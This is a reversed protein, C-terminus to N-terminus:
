MVFLGVSYFKSVAKLVVFQAGERVFCREQSSYVGTLGLESLVNMVCGYIMNDFLELRFFTFSFLFINENFM